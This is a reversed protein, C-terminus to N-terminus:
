DFGANSNENNSYKENYYKEKNSDGDGYFGDSAGEKFAELIQEKELLSCNDFAETKTLDIKINYALLHESLQEAFLRLATKM